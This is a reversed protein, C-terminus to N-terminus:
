LQVPYANTRCEKRRESIFMDREESHSEEPQTFLDKDLKELYEINGNMDFVLLLREAGSLVYLRNSIPHISIASIKLKIDPKKKEGKKGKVPVKINNELAFKEISPIDLRVVPGKVLKKSSLDFGYIFRKGKNDPNDDSTEKPVILLRNNKRDYCLGETNGGPIGTSYSASKFNDSNFDKVEILLEDSRIVYLTKDVLAIDEYDGESGFIIQREIKNKNIDYFFFIGHEDQICAITSADTETMGSIEYLAPPLVYIKDPVSLDYEIRRLTNGSQCDAHGSLFFVNTFFFLWYFFAKM